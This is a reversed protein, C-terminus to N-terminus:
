PAPGGAMVFGAPGTVPSVATAPATRGSRAGEYEDSRKLFCALVFPCTLAMPDPQTRRRYLHAPFERRIQARVGHIQWRAGGRKAPIVSQAQLTQRMHQPNRASDFEVDALVLAIPVRQHAADVLPRLIACDNTPGRWNPALDRDPCIWWWCCPLLGRGILLTPIV